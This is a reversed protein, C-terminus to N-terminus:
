IDALFSVRDEIEQDPDPTRSMALTHQIDERIEVM